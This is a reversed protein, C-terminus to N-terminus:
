HTSGSRPLEKNWRTSATPQTTPPHAARTRPARPRTIAGMRHVACHIWKSLLASSLLLSTINSRLTQKPARSQSAARSIRPPERPTSAPQAPSKGSGLPLGHPLLRAGADRASPQRNRPRWYLPRRTQPTRKEPRQRGRSLHRLAGHLLTRWPIYRSARAWPLTRPSRRPLRLANQPERLVRPARGRLPGPSRRSSAHKRQSANCDTLHSARSM